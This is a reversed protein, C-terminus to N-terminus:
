KKSRRLLYLAAAGATDQGTLDQGDTRKDRIQGVAYVLLMAQRSVLSVTEICMMLCIKVGDRIAVANNSSCVSAAKLRVQPTM